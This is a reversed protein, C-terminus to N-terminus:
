EVKGSAFPGLPTDAKGQTNCVVVLHEAVGAAVVVIVVVIVAIM